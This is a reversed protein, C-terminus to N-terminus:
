GRRERRETSVRREISLIFSFIEEQTPEKNGVGWVSRIIKGEKRLTRGDPDISYPPPAIYKEM